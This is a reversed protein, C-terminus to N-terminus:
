GRADFLMTVYKYEIYKLRGDIRGKISQENQRKRSAFEEDVDLTRSFVAM